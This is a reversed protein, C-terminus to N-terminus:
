TARALEAMRRELERSIRPVHLRRAISVIDAATGNHEVMMLTDIVDWIKRVSWDLEDCDVGCTMRDDMKRGGETATAAPREAV